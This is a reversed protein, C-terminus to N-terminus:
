PPVLWSVDLDVDVVEARQRPRGPEMRLRGGLTPEPPRLARLAVTGLLRPDCWHPRRRGRAGPDRFGPACRGTGIDPVRGSRALRERQHPRVTGPRLSRGQHDLAPHGGARADVARVAADRPN